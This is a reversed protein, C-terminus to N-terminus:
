NSQSRPWSGPDSVFVQSSRSLLPVCCSVLETLSWTAFVHPDMTDLGSCILSIGALSRSDDVCLTLVNVVLNIQLSLTCRCLFSAFRVTV